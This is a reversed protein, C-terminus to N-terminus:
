GNGVSWLGYVFFPAHEPVQENRIERFERAAELDGFLHYQNLNGGFKRKLEESEDERYGCNSLGSLLFGDSVDYGLLEWEPPCMLPSIAGPANRHVKRYWERADFGLLTEQNPEM